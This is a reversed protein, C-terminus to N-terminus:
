FNGSKQGRKKITKERIIQTIIVIAGGIAILISLLLSVKVSGIFLAEHADRFSELVARLIGYLVLYGGFIVGKTQVKRLVLVLVLCIIFDFFSEYLNTALHWTGDINLSFPFHMLAPNTTEIGYCCGAFCCGIRGFAQGLALCPVVVDAVNLFNQKRVLCFIIAGVAGGIISGYVALGGNWLAFAEWGWPGGNFILYYLRAGIVAPVIMWLLLEFIYDNKLSRFKFTYFALLVAFIIGLAIMIGYWHVSFGFITFAVASM